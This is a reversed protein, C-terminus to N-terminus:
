LTLLFKKNKRVIKRYILKKTLGMHCGFYLMLIIYFHLTCSRQHHHMSRKIGYSMSFTDYFMYLPWPRNRICKLVYKLLTHHHLYPMYSFRLKCSNEFLFGLQLCHSHLITIM